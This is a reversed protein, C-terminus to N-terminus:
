IYKSITLGDGIELFETELSTHNEIYEIYDRMRRMSTRHKKPVKEESIEVLGRQSVDDSIIYGGKKCVTLAAELFDKYHSKGADIFIFDFGGLGKNFLSRTEETCDGVLIHIKNTLGALGINHKASNIAFLDREITYIEAKPCVTAYFIASYGVATGLELIKKPKIHRIFKKLFVETDKRIIPVHEKECISRLDNLQKTITEVSNEKM